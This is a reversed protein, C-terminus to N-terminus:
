KPTMSDKEKSGYTFKDINRRTVIVLIAQRASNQQHAHM